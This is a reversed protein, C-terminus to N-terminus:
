DEFYREEDLTELGERSIPQDVGFQFTFVSYRDNKERAYYEYETGTFIEIIIHNGLDYFKAEM